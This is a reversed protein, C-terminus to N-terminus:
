PTLQLDCLRHESFERREETYQWPKQLKNEMEPSLSPRNVATHGGVFFPPLARSTPAHEEM